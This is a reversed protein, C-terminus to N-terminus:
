RRSLWVPVHNNVPVDRKADGDHKQAQKGYFRSMQQANAALKAGEVGKVVPGVLSAALDWSLAKIFLQSYKTPDVVKASYRMVADVQGSYIVRDGNVDLEVTYSQPTDVAGYRVDNLANPSAVSIIGTCDDPYAYAYTWDKRPSAVAVLTVYKTSFDWTHRELVADRSMPYFQACLDAEQTGDSPNIRTVKATEGINALALNCIDVETRGTRSLAQWAAFLRSALTDMGSGSYHVYDLVSPYVDYITKLDEVAVWRSYPDENAVVEIAANVETAYPRNDTGTTKKIKPQIFKILDSSSAFMGADKIAARMDKKLRRLNVAYSDALDVYSADGEGQVWSVVAVEGTSGEEALAKKVGELVDKFRQFCGNDEGPSWSIQQKPDSWGFGEGTSTGPAVAKQGITAGDFACNIYLVTKGQHQQLDLALQMGSSIGQFGKISPGGFAQYLTPTSYHGPYNFGPPFPNSRDFQEDVEMSHVGVGTVGTQLMAEGGYTTSLTSTTGDSTVVFYRKGAVLGNPLTGSTFLVVPAGYYTELGVASITATAGGAHAITVATPGALGRGRARGEFPSWPLLKCYEKFSRSDSGVPPPEIVFTDDIAVSSTWSGDFHLFTRIGNISDESVHTLNKVLGLNAGSDCRVQLGTLSGAFVPVDNQKNLNSSVDPEGTISPALDPGGRTASIFFTTLADLREISMEGSSSGLSLVIATSGALGDATLEVTGATATLLIYYTVGLTLGDPVAGTLKVPEGETLYIDEPFVLTQGVVTTSSLDLTALPAPQHTPYYTTAASLGATLYATAEPSGSFALLAGAMTSSFTLVGGSVSRVYYPGDGASLGTLNVRDGVALVTTGTGVTATFNTSSGTFALSPYSMGEETRIDPVPLSFPDGVRLPRESSTVTLLAVTTFPAVSTRRIVTSGVQPTSFGVYGGLRTSLQLPGSTTSTAIAKFAVDFQEGGDPPPDFVPTVGDIVFDGEVLTGGSSYSTTSPALVQQATHTTGTRRRILTLPSSLASTGMNRFTLPGMAAGFRHPGALGPALPVGGPYTKVTVNVNAGSTTVTEAEWFTAGYVAPSWYAVGSSTLLVETGEIHIISGAVMAPSTQAMTFAPFGTPPQIVGTVTVPESPAILSQEAYNSTFKSPTPAPSSSMQWRGPYATISHAAGGLVSHISGAATPNYFVACRVAEIASGRCNVKQWQGNVVSGNVDTTPGGKFTGSMTYSEDYAGQSYQPIQSALTEPSRIAFYPHLEEWGQIDGVPLANSQGAEIVITYDTM